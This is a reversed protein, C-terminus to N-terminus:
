RSVNIIKRIGTMIESLSKGENGELRQQQAVSLKSLLDIKMQMKTYLNISMVVLDGEGNKTIFIPENSNNALESIENSKNRLDSIPKIIPM